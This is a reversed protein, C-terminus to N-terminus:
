GICPGFTGMKKRPDIRQEISHAIMNRRMMLYAIGDDVIKLGEHAPIRGLYRETLERLEENFNIIPPPFQGQMMDSWGDMYPNPYVYLNPTQFTM